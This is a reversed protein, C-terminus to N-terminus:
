RVITERRESKSKLSIAMLSSLMLAAAVAYMAKDMGYNARLHKILEASLYGALNGVSNIWAIGAAAAVGALFRTPLAWFCAASGMVGVIAVGLLSILVWTALGTDAAAALAVAGAVGALFINRRHQGTEDANKALLLMGGAAVGWPIASVMGVKWMSPLQGAETLREQILQPLWLTVGYLGIIIFFYNLALVWVWFSSFVGAVSVPGANVVLAERKLAASIEQREEDSLWAATEPRDPLLWPLVLGMLVTPLGEVVFMWQWPKLWPWSEGESLLWGSIPNGLIGAVPIGLMFWAVMRSRQSQPFWQTLYLLIGPFFGAEAVGLLFRLTYFSTPSSSWAILMSVIGWSIMIRTIWLRAGLRHLLVNGPVEFLFYGIFFLGAGTAYIAESFWAEGSMGLKAFGVNVRDIYALVYAFFLIPLLRLAAHRQASSM